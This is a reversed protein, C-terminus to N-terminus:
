ERTENNLLKKYAQNYDHFFYKESYLNDLNIKDEIKNIFSKINNIYSYKFKQNYKLDLGEEFKEDYRLVM